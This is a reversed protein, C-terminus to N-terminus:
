GDDQDKKNTADMADAADRFGQANGRVIKGGRSATERGLDLRIRSALTDGKLDAGRLAEIADAVVEFGHISHLALMVDGVSSSPAAAPRMNSMIAAIADEVGRYRLPDDLWHVEPSTSKHITETVAALTRYFAFTRRDGFSDSISREQSLARRLLHEVEQSLSRGSRECAGDLAQRLDGTIRTTLQSVKEAYAGKAPRGRRAM